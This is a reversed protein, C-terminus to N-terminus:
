GNTRDSSPLLGEKLAFEGVRSTRAPQSPAFASSSGEPLTKSALRLKGSRRQDFDFWQTLAPQFNGM